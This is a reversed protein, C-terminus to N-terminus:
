QQRGLMMTDEVSCMELILGYVWKGGYQIRRLWFGHGDIPIIGAYGIPPATDDACPEPSLFPAARDRLLTALARHTVGSQSGNKCVNSDPHNIYEDLADMDVPCQLRTIPRIPNELAKRTEQERRAPSNLSAAASIVLGRARQQDRESVSCTDNTLADILNLRKDKARRVDEDEIISPFLNLIGWANRARLIRAPEDVQLPMLHKVMDPVEGAPIRVVTSGHAEIGITVMLEGDVRRFTYVAQGRIAVLPRHTVLHSDLRVKRWRGGPVRSNWQQLKAGVEALDDVRDNWVHDTHSRVHSWTVKGKRQLRLRGFLKRLERVMDVNKEPSIDGTAAGMTYESDPRLLVSSTPTPDEELLWWIAEILTTLEGTGSTHEAAGVFVPSSNDIVVCGSACAIERAGRDDIGDGGRVVSFGFGAQQSGGGRAASYAGDVYVVATSPLAAALGRIRLARAQASEVNQNHTMWRCVIRLWDPPCRMIATERYCKGKPHQQRLWSHFVILAVPVRWAIPTVFRSSHPQSTSLLRRPLRTRGDSTAWGKAEWRKRWEGVPGKDEGNEDVFSIGPHLIRIREEWKKAVRLSYKTVEGMASRIDNYLRDPRFSAYDWSSVIGNRRVNRILAVHTEAILNIFPDDQSPPTPISRSIDGLRFGTILARKHKAVLAEPSLSRLEAM